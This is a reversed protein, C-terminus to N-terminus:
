SRRFGAAKLAAKIIAGPDVHSATGPSMNALEPLPLGAARFAKAIVHNPDFRRTMNADAAFSPAKSDSAGLLV